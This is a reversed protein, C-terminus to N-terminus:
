CVSLALYMAPFFLVWGCRVVLFLLVSSCPLTCACWLM